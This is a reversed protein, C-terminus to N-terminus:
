QNIRKRSSFRSLPRDGLSRLRNGELRLSRLFRLDYFVDSSLTALENEALDLIKLHRTGAFVKPPLEQLKNHSMDLIRSSRRWHFALGHFTEAHLQSLDNNQLYLGHLELRNFVQPPLEQLKNHSLDLTGSGHGHFTLGHFAKAHLEQLKNHSLDLIYLYLGHFTDAHLEQLQNRSMDLIGVYCFSDARFVGRSLSVIRNDALDLTDIHWQQLLDRFLGEPLETM